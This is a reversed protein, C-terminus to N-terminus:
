LICFSETLMDSFVLMEGLSGQLRFMKATVEVMIWFWRSLKGSLSANDTIQPLRALFRYTPLIFM